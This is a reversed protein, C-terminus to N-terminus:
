FKKELKCENHLYIVYEEFWFLFIQILELRMLQHNSNVITILPMLYKKHPVM